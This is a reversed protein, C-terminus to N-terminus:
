LQQRWQTRQQLLLHHKSKLRQSGEEARTHVVVTSRLSRDTTNMSVRTANIDPLWLSFSPQVLESLLYELKDLKDLNRYFTGRSYASYQVQEAAGRMYVKCYYNESNSSLDSRHLFSGCAPARTHVEKSVRPSNSCNISDAPPGM